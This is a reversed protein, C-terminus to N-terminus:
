NLDDSAAGQPLPTTQVNWSSGNWVAAFATRTGNGLFQGVAECASPSTCSVANLQSEDSSTPHPVTQRTWRTGDWVEALAFPDTDEGQGVAECSTAKSCSVGLLQGGPGPATVVTWKSGTRKETLLDGSNNVVFGVAMCSTPSTCSVANLQWDTAGPPVPTGQDLWSAAAPQAVLLLASLALAAATVLRRVSM